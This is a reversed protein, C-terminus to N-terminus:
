RGPLAPPSGAGRGPPGIRGAGPAVRRRPGAGGDDLWLRRHGSSGDAAHRSRGSRRFFSRGLGGGFKWRYLRKAPLVAHRGFQALLLPRRPLRIPGLIDGILDEWREALPGLLERYAAEDPGLSAATIPLSKTLVAAPRHDLPHAMAVLPHIFDVGYEDLPLNRFFPSGAGLPHLAACVDHTFGPLTLSASRLGGGSTEAGELVLTKLGERALTVAAALGNPGSGVVVADYDTREPM